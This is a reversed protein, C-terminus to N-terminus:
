GPRSSSAPPWAGTQRTAPPPPGQVSGAWPGASAPCPAPGTAPQPCRRSVSRADCSFAPAGWPHAPTTELDTVQRCPKLVNNVRFPTLSCDGFELRPGRLNFLGWGPPLPMPRTWSCRPRFMCAHWWDTSRRDSGTTKGPRRSPFAPQAGRSRPQLVCCPLGVGEWHAAAPQTSRSPSARSSPDHRVVAAECAIQKQAQFDPALHRIPRRSLAEQPRKKGVRGQRRDANRRAVLDARSM